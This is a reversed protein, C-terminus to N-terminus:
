PTTRGKITITVTRDSDEAFEAHVCLSAVAEGKEPLWVGDSETFPYTTNDDYRLKKDIVTGYIAASRLGNGTLSVSEIDVPNEFCLKVHDTGDPLHLCYPEIALNYYYHPATIDPYTFTYIAGQEDAGDKQLGIDAPTRENILVDSGNM